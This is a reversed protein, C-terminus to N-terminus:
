QKTTKIKKTRGRTKTVINTNTDTSNRTKIFNNSTNKIKKVNIKFDKDTKTISIKM